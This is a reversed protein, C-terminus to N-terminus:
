LAKSETYDDTCSTDSDANTFCNKCRANYQHAQVTNFEQCDKVNTVVWQCSSDTRHLRAFKRNNKYVILFKSDRGRQLRTLQRSSAQAVEQTATQVDISVALSESHLPTEIFCFNQESAKKMEASFTKLGREFENIIEKHDPIGCDECFRFLREIVDSEDLRPDLARICQVAKEQLSKVISKFSRAYDDSGTPSWRGLFDRRSKEVELEILVANM